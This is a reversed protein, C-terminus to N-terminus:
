NIMRKRSLLEYNDPSLELGKSIYLKAKATQGKRFYYVAAASYAKGILFSNIVIDPHQENLEEFKKKYQEGEMPKNAEFQIALQALLTSALLGNFLNNESLSPFKFSFQLLQKSYDENQFRSAGLQSLTNILLSAADQNTSKQQLSEELYPIADKYRAQNYLYRANEYQYIFIIERKVKVNTIKALLENYYKELSEKERKDFLLSQIVKYFESSIMDATIGASEYRSTKGLLAAQKVDMPKHNLFAASGTQMLMYASKPSQSIYYAKEFQTFAMEHNQNEAMAIGDYLYHLGALDSITVTSKTDFYYTEFLTKISNRAFEQESIIKQNRLTEVFQKQFAEDFTSFIIATTTSEIVINSTQPLAIVYVNSVDEKIQYPINFFEFALCYLATGSIESFNGNLFVEEFRSSNVYKKLYRTEIASVLAKVKKDSKKAEFKEDALSKLFDYFRSHAERIQNETLLAGNAMFLYFLDTSTGQSFNKISEKEFFSSFTLEKQFVLSDQAYVNLSIFSTLVIIKRCLTM